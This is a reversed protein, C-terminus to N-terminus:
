FTKSKTLKRGSAALIQHCLALIFNIIEFFESARYSKWILRSMPWVDQLEIHLSVKAPFFDKRYEKPYMQKQIFQDRVPQYYDM